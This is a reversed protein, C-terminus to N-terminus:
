YSIPLAMEVVAGGQPSNYFLIKVESHYYLQCRRQVNWIGIHKDSDKSIYNGSQLELIIDSPFGKGNDEIRVSIYKGSINSNLKVQVCVSFPINERYCFGHEMSNEVFPQLIFAPVTVSDLEQEIDISYDFTQPFRIKQISLYNSIHELEESLTVITRNTRMMFRLHRVLHLTLQKVLETNKVQALSYVLNLCNAFFHPYIQAQLEKMEAKQVRLQEEYIGTKLHEIQHAMNNFADNISNFELLHSPEIRATLDGSQIKGMGRLLKKVPLAIVRQLYLLFFSLFVAAVLPTVYIVRQFVTLKQVLANVPLAVVLYLDSVASHISVVMSDSGDIENKLIAYPKSNETLAMKLLDARYTKLPHATTNTTLVQGESSAFMVQSNDSFELFRIPELLEELNVWVGIYTGYGTDTLKLLFYKGDMSFLQWKSICKQRVDASKLLSGLKSNIIDYDVQRKPAIILEHSTKYLFIANAYNYEMVDRQLKNLLQLNAVVDDETTTKDQNIYIINPDQFAMSHLYKEMGNLVNDVQNSHIQVISQNSAAVQNCVVKMAYWNNCILILLLPVTLIGFGFIIKFRLTSTSSAFYHKLNHIFVGREPLEGGM